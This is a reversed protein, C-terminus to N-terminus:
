GYHVAGILWMHQRVLVAAGLAVVWLVANVLMPRDGLLLRVPDAGDELALQLYRFLGYLACPATVLPAIGGPALDTNAYLFYSMAALAATLLMLLEVLHASYGRLAPRHARGASAALEARRKGLTMLLCGCFVSIPLWGGAPVGVAVCGGVVRLVFGMAVTLVDVLPVHKLRCTYAVNLALYAAVPWWRGPLTAPLLVVLLGTLLAAFTIATPVTVRGAAIPRDRKVPHQRDRHRDAIDNLVYVVGSAIVFALVAWGLRGLSTARWAAPYLGALPVVALSKVCHAPRVLALLDAVRAPRAPRLPTPDATSQTRTM